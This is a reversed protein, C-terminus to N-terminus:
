ALIKSWEQEFRLHSAKAASCQVGGNGVKREGGSTWLREERKM